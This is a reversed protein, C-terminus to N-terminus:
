TAGTEREILRLVLHITALYLYFMWSLWAPDYDSKQRQNHHRLSFENAIEFLRDEDKRFMHQKIQPRFFELVKVLEEVAEQRDKRSSRGSRFRRVADAIKDINEQNASRPVTAEMIEALGPKGIRQVEGRDSLEFGEGYFELANTVAIRWEDRAKAKDFKVYHWGCGSFTHHHAGEKSPASVLDWLLEITAFLTPEDLLSIKEDFPYVSDLWANVHIWGGVDEGCIGPVFGEDVCRYGFAEQFYDRSAFLRYSSSVLKRVAELDLRPPQQAGSRQHYYYRRAPM